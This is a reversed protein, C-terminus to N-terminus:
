EDGGDDGHSLVDAEVVYKYISGDWSEENKFEFYKGIIYKKTIPNYLRYAKSEENYGILICKESIDDLKRRMEEPVHAYSCV